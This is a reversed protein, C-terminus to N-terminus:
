VTLKFKYIKSCKEILISKLLVRLEHSLHVVCLENHQGVSRIRMSSVSQTGKKPRVINTDQRPCRKDQWLYKMTKAPGELSSGPYYEM